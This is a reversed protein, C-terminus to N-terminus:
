EDENTLYISFEIAIGFHGVTEAVYSPLEVSISALNTYFPIAVDINASAILHERQLASIRPGILKIWDTVASWSCDEAPANVQAYSLLDPRDPEFRDLEIQLAAELDPKSM